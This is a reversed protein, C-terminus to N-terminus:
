QKDNEAKPPPTADFKILAKAEKYALWVILDDASANGALPNKEDAPLPKMNAAAETALQRAEAEQGQRFLSMARYFATTGSGYSNSGGLRSAALLAADAVAYHGSRYEAMGLAMQFYVLYGHGQGLEVARRALVLAAEHTKDDSPRLSCIKAVREATTPDKTDKVVELARACTAALEKDQGFWAQLAATKLLPPAASQLLLLTTNMADVDAWLQAFAKQEDAPLKALTAADRIGALDSDQKWYGLKQVVNPGAQPSGSELFRGWASREAKLWDLAQRRLNAKAAGDLPPEDQGQGAAALAAARAAHYRHQARRDDALNPDSELAAARLRTAFAFKKHDDAFRAFALREEGRATGSAVKREIFPWARPTTDREFGRTADWIWIQGDSCAAALQAGAPHWSVDHFMATSGRLVLTEEGTRPDWVRVSNDLGASALRTGDPSWAVAHMVDNHGRMTSLKRGTAADWATIMFDESTAALRKGDPSWAVAFVRSEPGQLRALEAGRIADWLKVLNDAGGSALRDGQPSWALARAGGQHAEVVHVKPTHEIEEVVRIAGDQTGAALRTGDPSWAVSWVLGRDAPLAFVERGSSVDWVKATGDLCGSALRTGDPSWALSRILGLQMHVRREDHGKIALVEQRTAPDWIRVKGDDGGSALRKGSPSWAV